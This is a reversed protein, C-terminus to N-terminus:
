VRVKKMANIHERIKSRGLLQLTEVLEPGHIEGTTFVRIPMFLDKGKYGTDKQLEKILKKLDETTVLDFNEIADIKELFKSILIDIHEQELGIVYNIVEPTLSLEKFFLESLAIIEQGYHLEKKYLLAIKGLTDDSINSTSYTEKLFPITLDVYDLDLMKKIYQNNIYKLKNIDFTAPSKSLRKEDFIDILEERSYIEQEGGPSWGLLSIFNFMAEPLYGLNKYQEIFQIIGEDRKSLKKGNENVILTMHAFTPTLFGLAKYIMIQKPTNSIHDEGRMVHSIQMLHDDIVVAFNYTPIGNRKVINFDGGIDNSKFKVKGKVIDNWEIEDLLDAKFRITYSLGQDKNAKVEEKTLHRCKGGYHPIEGNERQKEAEQELEDSSCFCYYAKNEDILKDIYQNYIERKNRESQRYPAYDGNIDPGESWEVGLWKLNELQSKEGDQINRKLDTDEIRIIMDGSLNKAYLYNFLATRANGIHLHGTPSPAYRVRVRDM